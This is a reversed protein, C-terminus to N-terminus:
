NSSEHFDKKLDEISNYIKYGSDETYHHTSKFVAVRGDSLKQYHVLYTKDPSYALGQGVYKVKHYQAPFDPFM